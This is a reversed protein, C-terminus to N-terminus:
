GNEIFKFYEKLTFEDWKYKESSRSSRSLTQDVANIYFSHEGQYFTNWDKDKFFRKMKLQQLSLNDFSVVDFLETCKLIWWRWQQHNLSDINVKGINAGFDKEGLVLIKRVGKDHLSLVEEITDIGMIVHFVTNEYELLELPVSWNLGSRYSIGLGKILDLKICHLLKFVDRKLHGQNVTLNCIFGKAKCWTLFEILNDTLNNSGIALEIGRPMGELKAELASYDCESGNVKAEEHCFSCLVYSGDERQGFSCQTSVRIDINLPYELKMEDEFEIVRTGFEDISVSCNGNNYKLSKM